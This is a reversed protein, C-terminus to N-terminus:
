WDRNINLLVAQQTKKDAVFEEKTLGEIHSRALGIAEIIHELYDVYRLKANM